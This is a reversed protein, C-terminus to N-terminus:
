YSDPGVTGSSAKAASAEKSGDFRDCFWIHNLPRRPVDCVASVPYGVAVAGGVFIYPPLQLQRYVERQKLMHMDSILTVWCAALGLAHAMLLINQTAAAVDQAMVLHQEFPKYHRRDVAVVIATPIASRWDRAGLAAGFVLDITQRDNTSIFVVSQANCSSPAYRGVEVLHEILVTEVPDPQFRRISRREVIVRQVVEAEEPSPQKLPIDHMLCQFDNPYAEYERLIKKLYHLCPDKLGSPSVVYSELTAFISDREPCRPLKLCVVKELYHANKFSLHSELSADLRDRYRTAYISQKVGYMLFRILFLWFHRPPVMDIYYILRQIVWNM